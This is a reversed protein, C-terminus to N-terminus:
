EIYPSHNKLFLGWVTIFTKRRYMLYAVILWASVSWISEVLRDWHTNMPGSILSILNPFIFQNQGTWEDYLLFSKLLYAQIRDWWGWRWHFNLNNAPSNVQPLLAFVNSPSTLLSKTKLHKNVNGLLTKGECRLCVIGDLIQIKVSPSPSPILVLSGKLIKEVKSNNM